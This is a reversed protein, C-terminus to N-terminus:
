SMQVLPSELARLKECIGSCCVGGADGRQDHGDGQRSLFMVEKAELSEEPVTQSSSTVQRKRPVGAWVVPVVSGGSSQEHYVVNDKM